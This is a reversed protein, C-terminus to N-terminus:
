KLLIAAQIAKALDVMKQGLLLRKVAIKTVLIASAAVRSKMLDATSPRKTAPVLIGKTTTSGVVGEALNLVTAAAAKADFVPIRVM